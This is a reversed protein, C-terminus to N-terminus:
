LEEIMTLISINYMNNSCFDLGLPMKKALFFGQLFLSKLNISSSESLSLRSLPSDEDM